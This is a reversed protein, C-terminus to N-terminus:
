IGYAWVRQRPSSWGNHHQRDPSRELFLPLSRLLLQYGTWRCIDQGMEEAANEIFSEFDPLRHLQIGKRGGPNGASDLNWVFRVHEPNDGLGQADQYAGFLGVEENSWAIFRVTRALGAEAYASLVRAMETVVVMGSLPDNAGKRSTTDM